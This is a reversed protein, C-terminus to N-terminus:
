AVQQRGFSSVIRRRLKEIIMLRDIFLKGDLHDVEHQLCVADMGELQREFEEGHRDQATVRVKTARWVNGKQGPLSLCSEEVLGWTSKEHIQPNIYIQPKADTGEPSIALVRRPDDIQPASLGLGGVIKLTDLLDDVLASLGSDFDLVPDASRRLRTDPYELIPRQTM